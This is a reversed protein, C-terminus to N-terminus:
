NSVEPIKPAIRPSWLHERALCAEARALSVQWHARTSSAAQMEYIRATTAVLEYPMVDLQGHQQAHTWAFDSLGPANVGRPLVRPFEDFVIGRVPGDAAEIEALREDILSVVSEHYAVVAELQAVNDEIEAAVRIMADTAAQRDAVTERWENVIFGLVVAFVILVGEVIARGLWASVPSSSTSM